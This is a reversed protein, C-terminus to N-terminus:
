SIRKISEHKAGGKAPEEQRYRNRTIRQARQILAATKQKNQESREQAYKQYNLM